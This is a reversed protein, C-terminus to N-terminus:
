QVKYNCTQPNAQKSAQKTLYTKHVNEGQRHSATKVTKPADKSSFIHNINIFDLKDHRKKIYM